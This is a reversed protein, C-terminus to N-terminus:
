KKTVIRFGFYLVHLAWVIALVIQSALPASAMRMLFFSFGMFVTIAFLLKLKAAITMTREKVFGEINNKYFRTSIFWRHLSDSSKGFCGAALLLFPTTPILPLFVGIGGMGLFLFGLVLFVYKM